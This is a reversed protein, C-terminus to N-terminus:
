HKIRGAKKVDVDTQHEPKNRRAHEPDLKDTQRDRKMKENLGEDIARQTNVYDAGTGKEDRRVKAKSM